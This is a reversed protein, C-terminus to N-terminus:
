PIKIRGELAKSITMEDAYEIDSGIPLGRAIRTIEIKYPILLKAIYMSTAEGEMNMNTAIIVEKIKKENKIRTILENIKLKDPGIGELPSISGHLVHYLGKFGGSKEITYLDQPSEIICITEKNRQTDSCIKCPSNECYNFCSECLTINEKIASLAKAMADIDTHPMKLIFFALRAATKKGIGPLKKLNDILNTITKPFDM